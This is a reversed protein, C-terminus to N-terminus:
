NIRDQLIVDNAGIKKKRIGTGTVSNTNYSIRMDAENQRTNHVPMVALLPTGGQLQQM